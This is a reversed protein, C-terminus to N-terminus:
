PRTPLTVRAAGVRRGGISVSVRLTRGGLSALRVWPLVLARRRHARLRLVLRVRRQGHRAVLTVRCARTCSVSGLAVGAPTSRARRRLRASGAPPQLRPDPRGCTSEARGAAARIPGFTAAAQAPTPALPMLAEPAGVAYAAWATDRGVRQDVVRVYWGQYRAALVAGAGPCRDWYVGDAIVKCPGSRIRCVQTQLRSQENGWGGGWTAALPRVLGGVRLHGTLGPPRITRVPGLYPLSRASVSRGGYTATAEFVSGAPADGVELLGDEPGGGWGAECVDGGAPCRRWAITGVNGNPVPNAILEGRGTNLDINYSLAVGYLETQAGAAAPAALALSAIGAALWRLRTV